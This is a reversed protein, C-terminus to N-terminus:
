SGRRPNLRWDSDRFHASVKGSASHDPPGADSFVAPVVDRGLLRTQRKAWEVLHPMSSKVFDKNVFGYKQHYLSRDPGDLAQRAEDAKAAVADSSIQVDYDSPEEDLGLKFMSDFPRRLPHESEEGRWEQYIRRAEADPIDELKPLEKHAGSFFHASSGQLRLDVHRPDVGDLRLAEDLSTCFEGFQEPTMGLPATRSHWDAVAEPSIGLFECDAPTVRYGSDDTPLLDSVDDYSLRAHEDTVPPEDGHDSGTTRDGGDEAATRDPHEAGAEDRAGRHDEVLQRRAPAGADDPHLGLHRDLADLEARAYEAHEPNRALEHLYEREALRGLDHPSLDGRTPLPGDPLDGPRLVDPANLDLGARVRQGIANLEAVEHRIARPVALDGARDSVEIRYGGDPPPLHGDPLDRGAEDVPVSRAVAGDPLSDAPVVDLDVREVRVPPADTLAARALDRVVEPEALERATGHFEGDPVAAATIPRGGTEELRPHPNRVGADSVQKVGRWDSGLLAEKGVWVEDRGHRGAAGARSIDNPTPYDGKGFPNRAARDLIRQGAEREHHMREPLQDAHDVGYRKLLPAVDLEAEGRQWRAVQEIHEDIRRVGTRLKGLVQEARHETNAEWDFKAKAWAYAGRNVAHVEIRSVGSEHYWGELFSNWGKSFGHGQAAATLNISSHTVYLTGDPERSLVRITRGAYSGEADYVKFRLVVQNREVTIPHGNDEDFRVRFGDGFERGEIQRAFEAKVEGAWKAAEANTVPILEDFSPRRGEREWPRDTWHGDHSPEVPTADRPAPYQPDPDHPTPEHPAQHSVGTDHAPQHPTGPDHPAPHLVAPDHPATHSPALDHRAAWSPAADHSVAWPPAVDHGATRPPAVDHGVAWPPAPDHPPRGPPALDHPARQQPVPDHPTGGHWGPGRTPPAEPARGIVGTLRSTDPLGWDQVRRYVEPPDVRHGLAALDRDVGSIERRLRAQEEPRGGAWDHLRQLHVRENLRAAVHPEVRPTVEPRAAEGGGFIRGLANMARRLLGHPEPRTQAAHQMALTETIEHVWVRPLQEAAVRHNVYVLHPDDATGARVITEALDRMGGAVQPVFHREGGDALTVKVYPGESHVAVVGADAFDTPLTGHAARHLEGLSVDPQNWPRGDPVFDTEAIPSANHRVQDVPTREPAPGVLDAAEDALRDVVATIEEAPKPQVRGNEARDVLHEGAWRGLQEPGGRGTVSQRVSEPTLPAPPPPDAPTVPHRGVVDADRVPVEPSVPEELGRLADPAPREAVPPPGDGPPGADHPPPAGDSADPLRLQEGVEAHLTRWADRLSEEVHPARAVPDAPLHSSLVVGAPETQRWGGGEVAEMPPRVVVSRGPPVSENVQVVVDVELGDGYRVRLTRTQPDWDARHPQDAPGADRGRVLETVERDLVAAVERPAAVPHGPVPGDVPVLRAPDVGRVDRGGALEPTGAAAAPDEHGGGRVDPGGDRGLSHGGAHVERDGPPPGDGSARLPVGGTDRNGPDDPLRGSTGDDSHRGWKIDLDEGTREPVVDQWNHQENAAEHATRYDAEPHQRLYNSEALEHGLLVMDEPLPHGERLRIWAEAIDPSADFRRMEITGDYDRIPHDEVMLHQKIQHIEDPTFPAGGDPRPSDALNAAIEAVDTDDARFRDYARDAWDFARVEDRPRIAAGTSADPAPDAPEADRQAAPEDRTSENRAPEDRAPEDRTPEDRVPLHDDAHGPTAQKAMPPGDGTPDPHGAPGESRSAGSEFETRLEGLRRELSPIDGFHERRWAQATSDKHGVKQTMLARREDVGALHERVLGPDVGREILRIAEQLRVHYEVVTDYKASLIRPANRMEVQTGNARERVAETGLEGHFRDTLQRVHDIEHELDLFRMGDLHRVEREVRLLTKGDASYVHRQVARPGAPDEVLRFGHEDLFRVVEPFEPHLEMRVTGQRISEPTPAEGVESGASRMVADDVPQTQEPRAATPDHPPGDPPPPGGDGGERVSPATDRTGAHQEPRAARDSPATGADRAPDAGHTGRGEGEARPAGDVPRGERAHAPTPDAGDRGHRETGHPAETGSPARDGGVPSREGAVRSGGATTREGGPALGDRAGVRDGGPRTGETTSRGEGGPARDTPVRDTPVRDTPMRDTPVRDTPVRDTPVRDTPVRDTPVRDTPVRDTPARDTPIHDAPPRDSAPRDTAVRDTPASDATRQSPLGDGSSRDTALGDAPPRDGAVTDGRTTTGPPDGGGDPPGSDRGTPATSDAPARDGTADATGSRDVPGSRDGVPAGDGPVRVRETTRPTPESARVPEGGRTTTGGGSANQRPGGGGGGGGDGSRVPTGGGSEVRTGTPPDTRIGGTPTAAADRAEPDVKLNSFHEDRVQVVDPRDALGEPLHAVGDRGQFAVYGDSTLLLGEHGNARTALVNFGGDHGPLVHVDAGIRLNGIRTHPLSFKAQELVTQTGFIAGAAGGQVASHGVAGWDIKNHPDQIRDYVEQGLALGGGAAAGGITHGLPGGFMGAGFAAGQIVGDKVQAWDVGETRNGSLIQGFQGLLNGGGMFGAGFAVRTGVYGAFERGLTSEAVERAAIKALTNEGVELAEKGAWKRLLQQRIEKALQRQVERVAQNRLTGNIERAALGRLAQGAMRNAVAKSIGRAAVSRAARGLANETMARTAAAAVKSTILETIRTVFARGAAPIVRRAVAAPLKGFLRTLSRMVIRMAISAIKGVTKEAAQTLAIRTGAFLGPAAGLSGGGTPIAAAILMFLSVALMILNLAAMFKMLEVELGFNQVGRQMQGASEATQRLGELYAFWQEMFVQAAGDGSWSELIPDAMRLVDTYADNLAQALEGWQDALDYASNASALPIPGLLLEGVWTRAGPIWEEVEAFWDLISTM